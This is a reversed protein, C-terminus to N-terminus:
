YSILFCKEDTNILRKDTIYISRQNSWGRNNYKKCNEKFFIRDGKFESSFKAIVKEGQYKFESALFLKNLIEIKNEFNM